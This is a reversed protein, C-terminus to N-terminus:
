LKLMLAVEQRKHKNKILKPEIKINKEKDQKKTVSKIRKDLKELAKKKRKEESTLGALEKDEKKVCEGSSLVKPIPKSDQGPKINGDSDCSYEGVQEASFDSMESGYDDGEGSSSM